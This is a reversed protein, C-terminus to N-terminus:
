GGDKVDVDPILYRRNTTWNYTLFVPAHLLLSLSSETFVVLLSSFDFLMLRLSHLGVATTFIIKLFVNIKFGSGAYIDCRYIFGVM